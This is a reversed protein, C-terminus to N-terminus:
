VLQGVSQTVALLVLLLIAMGLAIGVAYAWRFMIANEGDLVEPVIRYEHRERWPPDANFVASDMFEVQSFAEDQVAEDADFAESHLHFTKGTLVKCTSPESSERYDRWIRGLQHRTAGDFKARVKEIRQVVASESIGLANAIEKGTRGEGLLALVERQKQTLSQLIEHNQSMSGDYRM